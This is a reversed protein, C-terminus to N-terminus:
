RNPTIDDDTPQYIGLRALEQALMPPAPQFQADIVKGHQGQILLRIATEVANQKTTGNRGCYENLLRSTDEDLSVSIQRRSPKLYRKVVKM